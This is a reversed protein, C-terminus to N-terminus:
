ALQVALDPHIWSGSHNGGKKVDILDLAPIGTNYVLAQILQKTENTQFWHKFQKGGAKCLQTANVFGDPRVSISLDEGDRVSLKCNFFGNEVTQTNTKSM